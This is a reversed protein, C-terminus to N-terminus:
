LLKMGFLLGESSWRTSRFIVQFHGWFSSFHVSIVLLHGKCVKTDVSFNYIIPQVIKMCILFSEFIFGQLVNLVVELRNLVDLVVKLVKCLM